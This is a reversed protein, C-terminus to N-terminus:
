GRFVAIINMGRGVKQGFVEIADDFSSAQVTAVRSRKEIVGSLKYYIRFNMM